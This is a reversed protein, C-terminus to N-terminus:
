GPTMIYRGSSMASWHPSYCLFHFTSQFQAQLWSTARDCQSHPVATTGELMTGFRFQKQTALISFTNLGFTTWPLPTSHFFLHLPLLLTSHTDACGPSYVCPLLARLTDRHKRCWMNQLPRFSKSLYPFVCPGGTSGTNSNDGKTNSDM